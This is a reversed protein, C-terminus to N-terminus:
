IIVHRVADLREACVRVCACVCLCVCMYICVCARARAVFFSPVTMELSM